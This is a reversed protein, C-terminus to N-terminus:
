VYGYFNAVSQCRNLMKPPGRFTMRGRVPLPADQEHFFLLGDQSASERSSEWLMSIIMISFSLGQRLGFSANTFEMGAPDYADVARTFMTHYELMRAHLEDINRLRLRDGDM